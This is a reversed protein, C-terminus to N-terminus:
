KDSEEPDFPDVGDHRNNQMDSLKYPGLLV